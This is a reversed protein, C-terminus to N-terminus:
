IYHRRKWPRNNPCNNSSRRTPQLSQLHLCRRRQKYRIKDDASCIWLQFLFHYPLRSPFSFTFKITVSFVINFFKSLYNSAEVPKGDKLWVVKMTPDNVPELRAEFHAFAGEKINLQDKIPSKFVPPATSEPPGPPPQKYQQQLQYAELESTKDIYRQQEPIGLDGTVSKRVTLIFCFHLSRNLLKM